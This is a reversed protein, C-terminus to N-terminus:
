AGSTASITIGENPPDPLSRWYLIGGDADIGTPLITWCGDPALASNYIALRVKSGNFILVYKDDPPVAEDISIWFDLSM